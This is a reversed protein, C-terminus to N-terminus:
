FYGMILNYAVSGPRPIEPLSDRKFWGGDVLEEEQLRIEGSAYDATFALM